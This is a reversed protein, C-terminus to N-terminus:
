WVDWLFYIRILTALHVDRIVCIAHQPSSIELKLLPLCFPLKSLTPLIHDGNSRSQTVNTWMFDVSVRRAEILAITKVGSSFHM